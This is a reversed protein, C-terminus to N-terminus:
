ADLHGRERKRESRREKDARRRRRSGATPRTAVRPKAPALAQRLLAALREAGDALNRSRERHRGAHVLLDGGRTLRPGLRELVLARRREGLAQSAPVSFRLVVKSAVKNVNQGGPGGARAATVEVESWPISLRASVRIGGEV